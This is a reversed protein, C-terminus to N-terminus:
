ECSRAASLETLVSAIEITTGVFDCEVSELANKPMGDFAADEPDQVICRGGARSIAKLGEVGDWLMGSLVVGVSNERATEAISVFLDDIRMLKRLRGPDVGLRMERGEVTLIQAPAAIYVHTCSLKEGEFPESVSLRTHRQLMQPLLNPAEPNRHTAVLLAGQFHAPLLEIIHAIASLGGASAGIGILLNPYTPQIDANM